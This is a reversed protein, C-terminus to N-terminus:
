KRDNGKGRDPRAPEDGGPAPAAPAAPARDRDMYSLLALTAGFIGFVLTLVIGILWRRNAAKDREPPSGDTTTM